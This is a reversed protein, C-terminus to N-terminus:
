SGFIDEQMPKNSFFFFEKGLLAVAQKFPNLSDTMLEIKEKDKLFFLIWM